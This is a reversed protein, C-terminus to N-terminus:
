HVTRPELCQRHSCYRLRRLPLMCRLERGLKGSVITVVGTRLSVCVFLYFCLFDIVRCHVNGGKIRRVSRADCCLLADPDTPDPRIDEPEEFQCEACTGDRIGDEGSGAIHQTMGQTLSCRMRLYCDLVAFPVSKGSQLDVARFRHNGCSAVLLRGGKSVPDFQYSLGTPFCFRANTGAAEVYGFEGNTSGAVTSVVSM